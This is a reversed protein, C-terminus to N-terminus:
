RIKKINNMLIITKEYKMFFLCIYKGIEDIVSDIWIM